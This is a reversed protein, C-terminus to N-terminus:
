THDARRPGPGLDPNLLPDALGLLDPEIGVVNKLIREIDVVGGTLQDFAGTFLDPQWDAGADADAEAEDIEVGRHLAESEVAGLGVNVLAGVEVALIHQQHDALVEPIALDEWAGCDPIHSDLAALLQAVVRRRLVDLDHEFQLRKGLRQDLVYMLQGTEDAVDIARVEQGVGIDGVEVEGFGGEIVYLLQGPHDPVNM